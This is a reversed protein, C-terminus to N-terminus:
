AAPTRPLDVDLSLGFVQTLLALALLCAVVFAALSGIACSIVGALACLALAAVVPEALRRLRPNRVGTRPQLLAVLNPASPDPPAKDAGLAADVRGWLSGWPAGFTQAARRLPEFVSKM